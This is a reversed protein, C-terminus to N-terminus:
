RTPRLRTARPPRECGAASSALPAAAALADDPTLFFANLPEGDGLPAFRDEDAVYMYPEYGYRGLFNRVGEFSSSREILFVPLHREITEALGRVVDLEAEQVDIKVFAPDL